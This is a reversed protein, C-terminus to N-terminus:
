KNSAKGCRLMKMAGERYERIMTIIVIADTAPFFSTMLPFLAAFTSGDWGMLPLFIIVFYPIYVFLIPVSSQAIVTKLFALQIANFSFSKNRAELIKGYTLGALTAATGAALLMKGVGSAFFAFALMSLKGDQYYDVILWGEKITDNFERTFTARIARAGPTGDPITLHTYRFYCTLEDAAIYLLLVIIFRFDKFLELRTPKAVTWYRYLFHINVISFSVTFSACFIASFYRHEIPSYSVASFTTGVNITKPNIFMHLASLFMDYSAFAFLLTSYTGFERKSYKTILYMLLGNLLFGLA